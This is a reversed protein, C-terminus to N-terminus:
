ISVTSVTSVTDVTCICYSLKEFAGGQSTVDSSHAKLERGLGGHSTERVQTGLLLLALNRYIIVVEKRGKGASM